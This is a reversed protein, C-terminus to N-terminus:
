LEFLYTLSRSTAWNSVLWLGAEAKHSRRLSSNALLTVSVIEQGTLM